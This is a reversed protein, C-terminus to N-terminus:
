KKRWESKKPQQLPIRYARVINRVTGASVGVRRIIETVSVGSAYLRAVADWKALNRKQM